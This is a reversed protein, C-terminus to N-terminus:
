LGLFRSIINRQMESTGSYITSAISDRLDRELEYERMYGYGGHIQVADLCARKLSESIFLKGISTELTSREKRDKMQGMKYLMLKGLELNVKMDVIKNSVSQYRGIEHGFQKRSKAYVICKELIREMTGIHAAAMLTREWEIVENFMLLGHGEKGLLMDASVNVEDFFLEGNQLTRLGMKELPMGRSFGEFDREVLFCSIGGLMSKRDGSRAFVIVLDAIPGNTIFIKGGTLLYGDGRRDARTRMSLVDSGADPETIAQAGILDGRSLRGLYSRKQQESGYLRILVICCHQTVIAHTLGGDRCGYGLAEISVIASLLDEEMGGCEKPCLLSLLGFEACKKWDELPFRGERDKEGIDAALERRAFRVVADRFGAHRESLTFNM